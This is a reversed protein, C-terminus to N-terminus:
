RSVKDRAPDDPPGRSSLGFDCLKLRPLAGGTALVNGLQASHM